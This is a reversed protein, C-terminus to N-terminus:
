IRRDGSPWYHRLLLALGIAIVVLPGFIQQDLHFFVIVFLAACILSASLLGVVNRDLRHGLLAYRRQAAYLAGLAPVLLILAGWNDPIYWGLNEVFGALGALVLVAGIIPAVYRRAGSEATTSTSKQAGPAPQPATPHEASM